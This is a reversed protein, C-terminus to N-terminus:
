QCVTSIPHNTAASIVEFDFTELSLEVSRSLNDGGITFQGYSATTAIRSSDFFDCDPM